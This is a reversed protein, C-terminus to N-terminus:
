EAHRAKAPPPGSQPPPLGSLMEPTVELRLHVVNADRTVTTVRLLTELVPLAQPEIQRRTKPDALGARGLLRLTDLLASLQVAQVASDCEGDLAVLYKEGDPRGALLLTRLSSLMRDLQPQRTLDLGLDRPLNQTRAVAFFDGGAVQHIKEQMDADLRSQNPPTLVADIDTNQALALRGPMLFALWMAGSQKGLAIEYVEIDGHHALKGARLAYATIKERNFRGDALALVRSGHSVDHNGEPSGPWLAVAVRDLDKQYDFGTDSVFQRYDKDLAPSPLLANLKEAFPTARLTSLNIHIVVAAGPPFQSVLNPLAGPAAPEPGGKHVLFYVGGVLTLILLLGIPIWTRRNM